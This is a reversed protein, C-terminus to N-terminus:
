QCFVDGLHAVGGGLSGLNGPKIGSSEGINLTLTGPGFEKGFFGLHGQGVTCETTIRPYPVQPEHEGGRVVNQFFNHLGHRLGKMPQLNLREAHFNRMFWVSVTVDETLVAFKKALNVVVSLASDEM